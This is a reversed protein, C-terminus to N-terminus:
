MCFFIQLYNDTPFIVKEQLSIILKM